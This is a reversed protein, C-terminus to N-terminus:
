HVNFVSSAKTFANNFSEISNYINKEFESVKSQSLNSSEKLHMYQKQIDQNIKDLSNIAIRLNKEAESNNSKSIESKLENMKNSIENVDDILELAIKDTEM